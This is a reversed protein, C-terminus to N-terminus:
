FFWICALHLYIYLRFLYMNEVVMKQFRRDDGEVLGLGIGGWIAPRWGFEFDLISWTKIVVMWHQKCRSIHIKGEAGVDAFNPIQVRYRNPGIKQSWTYGERGSDHNLPFHSTELIITEKWKPSGNEVQVM